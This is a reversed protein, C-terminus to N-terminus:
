WGQAKLWAAVRRAENLTQAWTWDRVQGGGIPQTLFVKDAREKEWRYASQLPLDSPEITIM